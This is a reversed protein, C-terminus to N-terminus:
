YDTQTLNVWHWDFQNPYMYLDIELHIDMYSDYILSELSNNNFMKKMQVNKKTHMKM